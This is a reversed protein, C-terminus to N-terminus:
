GLRARAESARSSDALSWSLVRYHLMDVRQKFGPQLDEVALLSNESIQNSYLKILTSTPSQTKDVTKRSASLQIIYLTTTLWISNRNPKPRKAKKEKPSEASVHKKASLLQKPWFSQKPGFLIKSLGNIKLREEEKWCKGATNTSNETLKLGFYNHIM